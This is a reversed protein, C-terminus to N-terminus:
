RIEELKKLADFLIKSTEQLHPCLPLAKLSEELKMKFELVKTKLADEDMLAGM